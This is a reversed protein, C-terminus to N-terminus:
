NQSTKKGMNWWWGVVHRWAFKVTALAALTGTTDAILDALEAGRGIGMCHQMLEIIAGFCITSIAIFYILKTPMRFDGPSTQIRLIDFCLLGTLGYMMLFHALKDFGIFLNIEIDPLPKPILTVYLISLFAITSLVFPPILHLIRCFISM